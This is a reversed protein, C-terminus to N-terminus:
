YAQRHRVCVGFLRVGCREEQFVRLRLLDYVEEHIATEALDVAKVGLGLHPVHHHVGLHDVCLDISDTVAMVKGHQGPMEVFIAEDAGHGRAGSGVAGAYVDRMAVVPGASGIVGGNASPYGLHKGREVFVQGFGHCDVFAALPETRGAPEKPGLVGRRCNGHSGISQRRAFLQSMYRLIPRRSAELGEFDQVLFEM